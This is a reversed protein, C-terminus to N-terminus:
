LLNIEMEVKAYMVRRSIDNITLNYEYSITQQAILTFNESNLSRKVVEIVNKEMETMIKLLESVQGKVNAFSVNLLQEQENISSPIVYNFLNEKLKVLEKSTNNFERIQSEDLSPRIFKREILKKTHEAANPLYKTHMQEYYQLFSEMQLASLISKHNKCQYLFEGIGATLKSFNILNTVARNFYWSRYLHMQKDRFFPQCITEVSFGGMFTMSAILMTIWGTFFAAGATQLSWLGACRWNTQQAFRYRDNRVLLYIGCTIVVISPIVVLVVPVIAFIYISFIAAKFAPNKLNTKIANNIKQYGEQIVFHLNSIIQGMKIIVLNNKKLTINIFSKPPKLTLSVQLLTIVNNEIMELTDIMNQMSSQQYLIKPLNNTLSKTSKIALTINGIFNTVNKIEFREIVQPLSIIPCHQKLSAFIKNPLQYISVNIRTSLKKFTKNLKCTLDTFAANTLLNIDAYIGDMSRDIENSGILTYRVSEVYVIMLMLIVAIVIAMMTLSLAFLYKSTKNEETIELAESSSLSDATACICSDCFFLIGCIPLVVIYFVSSLLVIMAWPQQLLFHYINEVQFHNTPSLIMDVLKLEDITCRRIVKKIFKSFFSHNSLLEQSVKQYFDSITAQMHYCVNQVFNYFSNMFGFSYYVETLNIEERM